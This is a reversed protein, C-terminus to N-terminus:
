TAVRSCLPLRRLKEGYQAMTKAREGAEAFELSLPDEAKELDIIMRKRDAARTAMAIDRRRAAFWEVQQLKVRDWPPNGIVADFGGKREPKDWESWVGPFAVQWHLFREEEILIRAKELLAALRRTGVRETPAEGLAIEVPDGFLGFFYDQLAAKEEKERPKLWDLAHLLSLFANLPKTGEEVEAFREASQHAEAIEADTLREVEQMPTAADTARKIPEHLFLSAGAKDIGERVWSGFLSDGCRLHHDLFSLPAGVTFTHLWLAVKALEVAMPNKDVGHVCRKLVMRRVIHRDDLQEDDVRWGSTQANARITKRIEEIRENLPSVYSKVTAEAEGMAAIVRDALYDVLDVLFHGSGMAPDCIKLELIREAPDLRKLEEMIGVETPEDATSDPVQAKFAEMRARVLPGVAEDIILGVLDDPTYYGGSGKRAFINLRIDVGNGDNVIERELLREYISGLQQVGLDRYNIYRRGELTKEFSLADIVNAMIQDPLRINGLLPTRERDFLGGNYPPLGISADGGDIARCLNDFASWYNTFNESFADDDDMRIGVDDRVKKRLSYDDYRTDHIPLLGRDEAYLVFLLRYLIVLAAERVDEPRTRPSAAAIAHALQPFIEEFVLKSLDSAVREEYHRGRNIALQHFTRSEESLPLFAERRFMLTFVKLWHRRAAESLQFLDENHGPVNLIRALDVEFFQESVSRAGSFYLRWHAGNTLIGWRLKGTTLDDVRRLYRLMQTSPATEEGQQGSRRDLPREWRKSEVIALGFEYRKWEPFGNAHAKKAEDEFLLGDPVDERGRSSLNQQRLSSEWGLCRLVRWILDDETQSENPSGNTPFPEFIERLANELDDLESDTFEKWEDLDSIAECLFDNAFLSGPFPNEFRTRPDNQTM